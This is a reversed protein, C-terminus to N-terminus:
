LDNEEGVVKWSVESIGQEITLRGALREIKNDQNGAAFIEAHVVSISPDGNDTSRLSRLILQNDDNMFQMLLVRVQNEIDQKMRITFVYCLQTVAEKDIPLASLKNGVPRLILHSLLIFLTGIVAESFYGMGALSGIAASCWLTAATNLGRVNMGDKMIVGAGLFGIGSVIYSAVRGNADGGIKVSLVIFIAAGLSVLTNTRLGAMRQRWQREVGIAAGLLLAILLRLSFQFITLM